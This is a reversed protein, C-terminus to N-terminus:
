DTLKIPKPTDEAIEQKAPKKSSRENASFVM